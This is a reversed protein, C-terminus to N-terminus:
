KYAEKILTMKNKLSYNPHILWLLSLIAFIFRYIYYIFASYTKKIYLLYSKMMVLHKSITYKSTSNKMSCGELHVIEPETYIMNVYGRKNYRYQMETEEFYMFFDPDFLGEKQIIEKRIFIDAGSVFDVQFCTLNNKEYKKIYRRNLIIGPLTFWKVGDLLNPFRNYSTMTNGNHDTLITGVCAINDSSEELFDYFLKIANNKLLTDSNLLFVYKGKAYKFGINNAKGFGLNEKLYLYQIRKDKSFVYSSDDSSNNDVLIIEVNIDKTFKIISDICSKTLDCTNYNVIIVSVDIIM